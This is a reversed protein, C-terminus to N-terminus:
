NERRLYKVTAFRSACIINKPMNTKTIRTKFRDFSSLAESDDFIIFEEDNQIESFDKEEIIFTKNGTNFELKNM